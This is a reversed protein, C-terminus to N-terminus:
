LNRSMVETRRRPVTVSNAGARHAPSKPTAQRPSRSFGGGEGPVVAGAAVATEGAASVAETTWHSVAAPRPNTREIPAAPSLAIITRGSYVSPCKSPHRGSSTRGKACERHSRKPRLPAKPDTCISGVVFAAEAFSHVVHGDALTETARAPHRVASSDPCAVATDSSETSASEECSEESKTISTVRRAAEVWPGSSESKALMGNTTRFANRKRVPSM